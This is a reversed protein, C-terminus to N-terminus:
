SPCFHALRGASRHSLVVACYVPKALRRLPAHRQSLGVGDVNRLRDVRLLRERHGLTRSQCLRTRANQRPATSEQRSVRGDDGSEVCASFTSAGHVVSATRDTEVSEEERTSPVAKALELMGGTQVSFADYPGSSDWLALEALQDFPPRASGTGGRVMRCVQPPRAISSPGVSPVASFPAVHKTQPNDYARDQEEQDPVEEYLRHDHKYEHQCNATADPHPPLQAESLRRSPCRIPSGSRPCPEACTPPCPLPLSLM